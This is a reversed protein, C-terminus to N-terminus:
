RETFFSIPNVPQPARPGALMCAESCYVRFERAASAPVGYVVQGCQKCPPPPGGELKPQPVFM